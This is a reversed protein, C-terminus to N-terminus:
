SSATSTSELTCCRETRRDTSQTLSFFASCRTYCWSSREKMSDSTGNREGLFYGGSTRTKHSLWLGFLTIGVFYGILVAWDLTGFTTATTM